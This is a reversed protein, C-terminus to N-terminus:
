YVVFLLIIIHLYPYVFSGVPNNTCDCDCLGTLEVVVHGFGPARITLNRGHILEETCSSATLTIDFSVQTLICFIYSSYINFLLQSYQLYFLASPM